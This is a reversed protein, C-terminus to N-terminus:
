FPNIETRGSKNSIDIQPLEADKPYYLQVKGTQNQISSSALPAQALEAFILGSTSRLDFYDAKIKQLTTNGSVNKVTLSETTCAMLDIRGRNGTIEISTTARLVDAMLNAGLMNISVTEPLFDQPIYIYVTCVTGAEARFAKTTYRTGPTQVSLCGEELQVAPIRNLNNCGIEISIEDGYIQSIRLEEYDLFIKLNTIDVIGFVQSYVINKSDAFLSSISLLFLCAFLILKNCVPFPKKKFMYYGAGM